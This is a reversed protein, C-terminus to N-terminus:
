RVMYGWVQLTLKGAGAAKVLTFDANATVTIRPKFATTVPRDGSPVGLDLITAATFVSPTGTNLRDHDTGDGIIIVASTTDGTFAAVDTLIAREIWFNVPLDFTVDYTGATSGGDTFQSVLVTEEYIQLDRVKPPVNWFSM